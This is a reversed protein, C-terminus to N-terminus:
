SMKINESSDDISDRSSVVDEEEENDVERKARRFDERSRRPFQGSFRRLRKSCKAYKSILYVLTLVAAAAFFTAWMPAGFSKVCLYSIVALVLVPSFVKYKSLFSKFKGTMSRREVGVKSNAYNKSSLLKYMERETMKDVNRLTSKIKRWLGRRVNRCKLCSSPYDDRTMKGLHYNMQAKPDINNIMESITASPEKKHIDDEMMDFYDQTLADYRDEDYDEGNNRRSKRVGKTEGDTDSEGLSRIARIDSINVQNNKGWSEAFSVASNNSHSWSNHALIVTIINIFLSFKNM